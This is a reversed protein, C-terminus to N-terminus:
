LGTLDIRYVSKELVTNKMFAVMYIPLYHLKGVVEVNYNSLIYAKKIEYDDNSLVNTLASHKKYDKGSKVEIPSVEGDIEIVFDLEGQTKNNFYYLPIKHAFLEQSVANEFLGGNNINDHKDLLKLKTMDPYQNTLLGVDSLFLKFLSRNQSILLPEKPESVNYVPLAVGADKLWLFDNEVSQYRTKGRIPSIKFRKNKADLESPIASYIERLHLTYKMEYKTFDEKYLRTIKEHVQKVQQLDNTEIYTSVAEPM